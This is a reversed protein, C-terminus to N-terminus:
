STVIADLIMKNFAMLLFARCFLDIFNKSNCINDTTSNHDWVRSSTCLEPFFQCFFLPGKKLSGKNM